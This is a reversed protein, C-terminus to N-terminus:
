WKDLIDSTTNTLDLNTYGSRNELSTKKNEITEHVEGINKESHM